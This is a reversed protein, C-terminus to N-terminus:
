KINITELTEGNANVKELTIHGDKLTFIGGIYSSPVTKTNGGEEIVPFRVDANPETVKFKHTHGCVSMDITGNFLNIVESLDTKLPERDTTIPVHSLHVIYDGNYNKAENVANKYFDMQESRYNVGDSLGSFGRDDDSRDTGFDSVIFFANNYEFTYYFQGDPTPIYDTIANAGEGMLEHNGRTYVVPIEGGSLKAMSDVLMTLDYRNGSFSVFDGLCAIFDLRDLNKEAAKVAGGPLSHIDSVALFVAGEKSVPERFTITKGYSTNGFFTHNSVTLLVSKVGVRYEAGQLKEKPIEVQHINTHAVKKSHATQVFTETKGDKTVEVFGLGNRNSIFEVTYEDDTDFVVAGTVLYCPVTVCVSVALVLVVLILATIRVKRVKLLKDFYMFSLLLGIGLLIFPLAQLLNNFFHPYNLINMAGVGFSILFLIVELTVSVATVWKPLQKKWMVLFLTLLVPQILLIPFLNFTLDGKFFYMTYKACWVIIMSIVSLAIATFNLKKSKM